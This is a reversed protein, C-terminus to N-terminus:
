DTCNCNFEDAQLDEPTKPTWTKFDEYTGEQRFTGKGIKEQNAFWAMREPESIWQEKLQFPKKHFCGVCNSEAPYTWGLDIWFNRIDIETIGDEILPFRLDRWHFKYHKQRFHGWLNCMYPYTFPAENNKLLNTKRRLEEPRFGIHMIVRDDMHEFINNFVHEFIPHIKMKTTCYRRKYSPLWGETGQNVVDYSPGTVWDIRQGLLQELELMNKVTDDTEASAIFGPIKDQVARLLGPDKPACAPDDICVLAFIYFDTPYHLAMFNSTKGGSVSTVTKLKKEEMNEGECILRYYWGM